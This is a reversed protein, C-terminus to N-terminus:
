YPLSCSLTELWQSGYLHLQSHIFLLLWCFQLCRRIVNPSLLWHSWIIYGFWRWVRNSTQHCKRYFVYFCVLPLKCNMVMKPLHWNFYHRPDTLDSHLPDCLFIQLCGMYADGHYYIIVFRCIFRLCVLCDFDFGLFKSSM